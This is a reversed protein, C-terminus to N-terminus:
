VELMKRAAFERQERLIKDIRDEGFFKIRAEKYSDRYSTGFPNYSKRNVNIANYTRLNCQKKNTTNRATSYNKQYM